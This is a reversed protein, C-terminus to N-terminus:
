VVEGRQLKRLQLIPNCVHKASLLAAPFLCTVTPLRQSCPGCVGHGRAHGAGTETM